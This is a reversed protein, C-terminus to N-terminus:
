IMDINIIPGEEYDKCWEGCCWHAPLGIFIHKGYSEDKLKEIKCKKFEKGYYIVDCYEGDISLVELNELKLNRLKHEIYKNM